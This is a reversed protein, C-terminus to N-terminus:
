QEFGKLLDTLMQDYKEFRIYRGLGLRRCRTCVDGAERLAPIDELAMDLYNGLPEGGAWNCCQMVRGAPDIYPYATWLLCKRDREAQSEAILQAMPALMQDALEQTRPPLTEGELARAAYDAFVTSMVPKPQFGLERCMQKIAPWDPASRKDVHWYLEVLTEGRMQSLTRCNREFEGWSVGDHGWEYHEAGYGSTAVKLVTPEAALTASLHRVNSLSTSLGSAVRRRNCERVIDPLEPNLLPEGWCYLDVMYLWPLEGIMKDLVRAFLAAPMREGAKERPCARCKLGCANCVDITPYRPCFSHATVYRIGRAECYTAVPAIKNSSIAVVVLDGREPVNQIPVGHWRETLARDVFYSAVRGHRGLMM